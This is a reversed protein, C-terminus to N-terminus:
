GGAAFAIPAEPFTSTCITMESDPRTTLAVAMLPGIINRGAAAAAAVWHTKLGAVRSPIGTLVSFTKVKVKPSLHLARILTRRSYVFFVFTKKQDKKTNKMEEHHIKVRERADLRSM